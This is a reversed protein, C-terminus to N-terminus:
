GGADQPGTTAAPRYVMTERNEALVEGRQNIYTIDVVIFLLHGTRGEREYIDGIRWHATIVDDPRPLQHFVYDNSARIEQGLPLRVRDTFGGEEDVRGTYYQTTECVFTPPAVVDGYPGRGAEKPDVYLPNLDGIALAFMRISARGVEEPATFVYEKGILHRYQEAVSGLESM